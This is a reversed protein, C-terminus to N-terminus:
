VFGERYIESIKPLTIRGPTRRLHGLNPSFRDVSNQSIPSFGFKVFEGGKIKVGKSHGYSFKRQSWIQLLSPGRVIASSLTRIDAGTGSIPTILFNPYFNPPGNFFIEYNFKGKIEGM